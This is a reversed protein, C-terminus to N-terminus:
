SVSRSPVAAGWCAVTGDTRVGCTHVVGGSVETFTGSPPTAQENTNYGWCALTGDPRLGCTHTNGASVHTFTGSPVMLLGSGNHGWCVVTGDTRLGCTHDNGASVETFTGSPPTLRVGQLIHLLPYVQSYPPFFPTRVKRTHDSM